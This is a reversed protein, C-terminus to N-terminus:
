ENTLKKIRVVRFSCKDDDRMEDKTFYDFTTPDKGYYLAGYSAEDKCWLTGKDNDKLAGGMPLYYKPEIDLYGYSNADDYRYQNLYGYDATLASAEQKTMVRYGPYNKLLNPIDARTCETGYNKVDSAGVNRDAIGYIDAKNLDVEKFVATTTIDFKFAMYPTHAKFTFSGSATVPKIYINGANDKANFYLSNTPMTGPLVVMYCGEATVTGDLTVISAKGEKVAFQINEGDLTLDIADAAMAVDQTNGLRVETRNAPSTTTQTVKVFAGLAQMQIFPLTKKNTEPDTTVEAKGIFPVAQKDFSGKCFTQHQLLRVGSVSHSNDSIRNYKVNQMNGMNYVFTFSMGKAPSSKRADYKFTATKGGDSLNAVYYWAGGDGTKNQDSFVLLSDGTEFCLNRDNDLTARTAAGGITFTELTLYKEVPPTVPDPKTDDSSSCAAFVMAMLIIMWSFLSSSSGSAEGDSNDFIGGSGKAGISTNDEDNLPKFGIGFGSGNDMVSDFQAVRVKPSIYEKKEM